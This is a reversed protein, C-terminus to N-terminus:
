NVQNSDAIFHPIALTLASMQTKNLRKGDLLLNATTKKCIAKRLNLFNGEIRLKISTKIM